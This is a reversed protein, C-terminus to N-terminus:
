EPLERALPIHTETIFTEVLGRMIRGERYEFRPAIAQHLLHRKIMVDPENYGVMARLSSTGSYRPNIEFVYMKGEHLRVQINVASRCGLAVAIRECEETVEPYRGIDGQSVGSSIALHTGLSAKGSKNLAKFRNSLGSMIAKKVAISNLCNGEMDLLVGVTYESDPNGVYEQVIFEPYLKLLNEGFSRLEADSQAVYTNASGGGGVSPKLVAPCFDVKDLDQLSTVVVTRPCNFGNSTLWAMTKAKDMCIEIVRAPNIPLFIGAAEIQERHASIVKLEPESGPFLAQVQHARAIKLLCEIYDPATAAPVLYPVDVEYLGCSSPSMDCGVIFYEQESLKLCKLLQEGNGGGGVGTVLVALKQADKM